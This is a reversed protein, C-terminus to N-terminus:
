AWVANFSVTLRWKAGGSKRNFTNVNIFNTRREKRPTPYTTTERLQSTPFGPVSQRFYVQAVWKVKARALKMKKTPHQGM